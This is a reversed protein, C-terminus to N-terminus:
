AARHKQDQVEDVHDVAVAGFDGRDARERREPEVVLIVREGGAPHEVERARKPEEGGRRRDRDERHHGEHAAVEARWKHPAGGAIGPGRHARGSIM